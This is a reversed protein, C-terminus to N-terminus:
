NLDSDEPKVIGFKVTFDRYREREPNWRKKKGTSGAQARIFDGGPAMECDEKFSYQVEGVASKGASKFYKNMCVREHEMQDDLRNEARKKLSNLLRQKYEELMESKQATTRVPSSFDPQKWHKDRPIEYAMDRMYEPPSPPQYDNSKRPKSQRLPQYHQNPNARDAIVRPEPPSYMPKQTAPRIPKSQSTRPAERPYPAISSKKASSEQGPPSESDAAMAFEKDLSKATRNPGDDPKTAVPKTGFDKSESPNTIPSFEILPGDRVPLDSM